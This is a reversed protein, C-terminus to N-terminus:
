QVLYYYRLLTAHRRRACVYRSSDFSENIASFVHRAVYQAVHRRELMTWKSAIENNRLEALIQLTLLLYLKYLV